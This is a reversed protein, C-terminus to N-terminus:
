KEIKLTLNIKNTVYEILKLILDNLNDTIEEWNTQNRKLYRTVFKFLEDKSIIADYIYNTREEKFNDNDLKNDEPNILMIKDKNKGIYPCINKYITTMYKTKITDYMFKIFRGDIIEIKKGYANLANSIIRIRTDIPTFNNNNIWILADDFSFINYYIKLFHNSNFDIYPLLMSIELMKKDTENTPNECMDIIHKKKTGDKKTETWAGVPCYATKSSLRKLYMPHLTHTNPKYCPGVCQHNNKSKPFKKINEM